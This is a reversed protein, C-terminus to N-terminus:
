YGYYVKKNEYMRTDALSILQQFEMGESPFIAHGISMSIDSIAEKDEIRISSKLKIEQFVELIEKDTKLHEVIIVFEDGGYRAVTDSERVISQLNKAISKLVKDGFNHGYNDNVDKFENLDCLFLAIKKQRRKAHFVAQSFRDILLTRNALNTLPDHTALHQYRTELKKKETIDEQIVLFYTKNGIKVKQVREFVLIIKGNKCRNYIEFSYNDLDRANTWLGKYFLNNHRGSKLISLSEGKLEKNTYGTLEVFKHNVQVFKGDIDSIFSAIPSDMFALSILEQDQHNNSFINNLYPFLNMGYELLM